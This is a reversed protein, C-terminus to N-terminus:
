RNATPNDINNNPESTADVERIKDSNDSDPRASTGDYLMGVIHDPMTRFSCDDQTDNKADELLKALTTKLNSNEKESAQALRKAALQDREISRKLREFEALQEDAKADANNLETILLEKASNTTALQKTLEARDDQLGSIVMYIMYVGLALALYPWLKSFM